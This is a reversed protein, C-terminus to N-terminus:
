SSRLQERPTDTEVLYKNGTIDELLLKLSQVELINEPNHIVIEKAEHSIRVMNNYKKDLSNALILDLLKHVIGRRRM